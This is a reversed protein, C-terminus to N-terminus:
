QTKVGAQQRLAQRIGASANGSGLKKLAQWDRENITVSRRKSTPDGYPRKTTM